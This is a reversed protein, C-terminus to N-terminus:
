GCWNSFGSLRSTMGPVGKTDSDLAIGDRVAPELEADDAIIEIARHLAAEIFTRNEAAPTDSQWSFFITHAM